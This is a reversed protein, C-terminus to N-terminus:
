VLNYCNWIATSILINQLKMFNQKYPEHILFMYLFFILILNILFWTTKSTWNYHGDKIKKATIMTTNATAMNFDFKCLIGFCFMYMDTLSFTIGDQRAPESASTSISFKWRIRFGPLILSIGGLCVPESGM